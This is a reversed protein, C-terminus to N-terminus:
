SISKEWAPQAVHSNAAEQANIVRRLHERLIGPAETGSCTDQKSKQWWLKAKVSIISIAISASNLTSRHKTEPSLPFASLPLSHKFLNTIHQLNFSLIFNLDRNNCPEVDSNKSNQEPEFDWVEDNHDSLAQQHHSLNEFSQLPHQIETLNPYGIRGPYKSLGLICFWTKQRSITKPCKPPNKNFFFLFFDLLYNTNLCWFDTCLM